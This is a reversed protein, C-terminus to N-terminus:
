RASRAQGDGRGGRGRGGNQRDNEQEKACAGRGRRGGHVRQIRASAPCRDLERHVTLKGASDMLVARAPAKLARSGDLPEGGDFDLLTMGTTFDFAPSEKLDGNRDVAEFTSSWMVKAHQDLLNLVSGRTFMAALAVEAATRSDLSKILLQAEPEANFNAATAPQAGAVFVLGAQPVVAVPSPESWDTFRYSLKESNRREIVPDDLYMEQINENVDQLVLRVRYRYRSGPEVKSDFYRFLLYGTQQDWEYQEFQEEDYAGAGRGMM